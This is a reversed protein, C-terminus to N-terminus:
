ARTVSGAAEGAGPSVGAGAAAGGGQLRAGPAGHQPRGPGAALDGGGGAADRQDFVKSTRLFSALCHVFSPLLLESDGTRGPM